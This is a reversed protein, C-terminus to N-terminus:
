LPGQFPLTDTETLQTASSSSHSLASRWDTPSRCLLRVVLWAVLVLWGVLWSALWAAVLLVVLWAAM